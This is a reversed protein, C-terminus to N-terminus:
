AKEMQSKIERIREIFDIKAVDFTIEKQNKNQTKM